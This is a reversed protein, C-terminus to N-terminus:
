YDERYARNFIRILIIVPILGMLDACYGCFKSHEALDLILFVAAIPTLYAYVMGLPRLLGVFDDEINKIVYGLITALLMSIFFFILGVVVCFLLLVATDSDIKETDDGVFAMPLLFVSYVITIAAIWGALPVASRSKFNRLYRRFYFWLRVNLVISMVAIKHEWSKFEAGYDFEALITLVIVGIGTYIATLFNQNELIRKPATVPQPIDQSRVKEFNEKDLVEGCFKCKIAAANITEACYPCRKTAEM